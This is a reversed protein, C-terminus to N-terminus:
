PTEGSLNGGIEEAKNAAAIAVAQAAQAPAPADDGGSMDLGARSLKLSRRNIALGLSLLVAIVGFLILKLGWALANIITVLVAGVESRVNRDRVLETILREAHHDLLAVLWWAFLTLVAAGAVSAVLAIIARWDRPPWGPLRM